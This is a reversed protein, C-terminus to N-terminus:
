KLFGANNNLHENEGNKKKMAFPKIDTTISIFINQTQTEYVYSSHTTEPSQAYETATM